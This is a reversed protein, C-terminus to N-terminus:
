NMAAQASASARAGTKFCGSTDILADTRVKLAATSAATEEFMAANQQTVGDLENMAGSVQTLAATQEITANAVSHMADNLGEIFDSIRSIADGTEDVQKAGKTVQAESTEILTNIESAATAARQALARVESAVVSFGRGSEGARAAEVGANLALLNTQFSIDDILSTVKSIEKSAHVIAAMSAVARKVVDGTKSAIDLAENTLDRAEGAQTSVSEVSASLETVASSSEQLSAAQSETRKALSNTANAIADTDADIAQANELVADVLKAIQMLSANFSKQLERFAGKFDGDMRASLDGDHMKDTVAFIAELGTEVTELLEDVHRGVLALDEHKSAMAVRTSFDGNGAAQSVQGIREQLADQEKQRQTAEAAAREREEHLAKQEALMRMQEEAMVRHEEAAKEAAETLELNRILSSRFSSAAEAISGIETAGALDSFTVSTNGQALASIRESLDKAPAVASTKLIRGIGLALAACILATASAIVMGIYKSSRIDDDLDRTQEYLSVDITSDLQALAELAPGDSVKVLADIETASLGEAVARQAQELGQEYQSVVERLADLAAIETDNTPLSAYLEIDFRARELSATIKEVRPADKRLVYNKFHHIMGGYGLASRLDSLLGPKSKSGEEASLGTAEVYALQQAAAIAALADLAPSDDIKVVADIDEPTAGAEVMAKVDNSKALYAAVVATINEAHVKNEPSTRALRELAIKAAHADDSIDDFHRETGRLVYNKFSHILGGYGVSTIVEGLEIGVPDASHSLIGADRESEMLLYVIVAACATLLLGASTLAAVIMRFLTDLSTNKLSEPLM